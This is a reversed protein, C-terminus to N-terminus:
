NEDLSAQEDGVELTLESGDKDRKSLKASGAGLPAVVILPPMGSGGQMMLFGAIAAAALGLYAPLSSTNSQKM